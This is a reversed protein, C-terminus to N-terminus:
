EGGSQDINQYVKSTWKNTLAWSFEDHKIKTIPDTNQARHKSRQKREVLEWDWWLATTSMFYLSCNKITSIKVVSLSFMKLIRRENMTKVPTNWMFDIRLYQRQSKELYRKRLVHYGFFKTSNRILNVKRNSNSTKRTKMWVDLRTWRQTLQVVTSHTATHILPTLLNVSQLAWANMWAHLLSWESM